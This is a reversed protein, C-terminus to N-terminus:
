KTTAGVELELAQLSLNIDRLFVILSAILAGLCAIFLLALISATEWQFLASVFLAIIFFSALLVSATALSIALRILRARRSLINLQAIIRDKVEASSQRVAESLQRSRDIVRGFRNTMSLLLLGVGSVLIVPGIALQITPVLDHLRMDEYVRFGPNWTPILIPILRHKRAIRSQVLGNRLWQFLRILSVLLFKFSDSNSISAGFRTLQPNTSM